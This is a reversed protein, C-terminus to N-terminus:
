AESAEEQEDLVIEEDLRIRHGEVDVAELDSEYLFEIIQALGEGQLREWFSRRSDVDTFKAQGRNRRGPHPWIPVEVVTRDHFKGALDVYNTAELDLWLPGGLRELMRPEPGEPVIEWRLYLKTTDEDPIVDVRM